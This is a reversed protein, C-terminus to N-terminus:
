IKEFNVVVDIIAKEKTSLIIFLTTEIYSLVYIEKLEQRTERINSSTASYIIRAGLNM